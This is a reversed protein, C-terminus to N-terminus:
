EVDERSPRPKRDGSRLHMQVAGHSAHLHLAPTSAYLIVRGLPVSEEAQAHSNVHPDVCILAKRTECCHALYKQCIASEKVFVALV